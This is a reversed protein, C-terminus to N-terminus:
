QKSGGLWQLYREVVAEACVMDWEKALPVIKDWEYQYPDGNEQKTLERRKAQLAEGLLDRLEQNM